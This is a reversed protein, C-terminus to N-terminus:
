NRFIKNIAETKSKVHLKEYINRIHTRVTQPSIFLKAGIEKYNFGEAMFNIIEVERSTLISESALPKIKQFSNVVLRAIHPSMPSGGNKVKRIGDLLEHTSNTKILYGSAGACLAQFIYEHNPFSTYVIFQVQPMMLKAEQICEIGTKGPIGIDMLVVDVQLHRFESLFLAGNPFARILEMDNEISLIKKLMEILETDDEVLAIKIISNM